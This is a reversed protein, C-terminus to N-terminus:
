QGAERAGFFQAVVEEISYVDWWHMANECVVRIRGEKLSDGYTFSVKKGCKPCRPTLSLAVSTSFAALMKEACRLEALALKQVDGSLEPIVNMLEGRMIEYWLTTIEWPGASEETGSVRREDSM